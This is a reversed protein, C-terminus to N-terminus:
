EAEAAPVPQPQLDLDGVCASVTEAFRILTAESHPPGIMQLGVPARHEADVAVPLTIAPLGPFSAAALSDLTRGVQPDTFDPVVSTASPMGRRDRPLRGTTPTLWLAVGQRRFRDLVAGRTARLATVLEAYRDDTVSAGYELALRTPEDLTDRLYPARRRFLDWASRLCIEWVALRGPVLDDLEVPVLTQGSEALAKVANGLAGAIPAACDDFWGAPVGIRMGHPDGATPTEGHTFREWAYALDDVTRAFWGPTDMLPSVEFLGNLLDATFTQRLGVVGCANAPLRVSGTSDTGVAIDCIHAAVAVASGTSSGAPHLHPFYPNVCRQEIGVGLQPTILKAVIADPPVGDLCAASRAPYRRYGSLGARTAFGAVDISDKVGVRLGAPGARGTRMEVCARYREDARCAWADAAASFDEPDLEGASLLRARERLPLRVVPPPASAAVSSPSNM